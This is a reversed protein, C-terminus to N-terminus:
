AVAAHAQTEHSPRTLVATSATSTARFLLRVTTGRGLQSEIEMRGQHRRMVGYVLALGLGRGRPRKTSFFPEICRERTTSDMGVGSDRVELLVHDSHSDLGPTSPRSLPRTRLELTGGKPMAELANLVLHHVAQRLESEFHSVRPLGPGLEAQLRITAGSGELRRRNTEIVAQVLSNLDLPRLPEDTDAGRYFEGLHDVSRLINAGASRIGHLCRDTEASLRSDSNLLYDSFGLIPTLSNNLEHAIGSAMQALAQLREQQFLMRQRFQLQEYLRHLQKGEPSQDLLQRFETELSLTQERL